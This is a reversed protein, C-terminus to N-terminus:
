GGRRPSAWVLAILGGSVLVYILCLSAVVSEPANAMVTFIALPLSAAGPPHLLLVTGIDATALLAPVAAHRATHLLVCREGGALRAADVQSASLTISSAYSTLLVLPITSSAFVLVCGRLGTVIEATPLALHAGLASWGTAWLLSPVLLPLMALALLLRRGPCEYLAVLVGLPLGLLLSVTTVALAVVMGSVLVAGFGASLAGTSLAQAGTTTSTAITGLLPMTPLAAVLLLLVV